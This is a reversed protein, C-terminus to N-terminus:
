TNIAEIYRADELGKQRGASRVQRVLIPTYNVMM